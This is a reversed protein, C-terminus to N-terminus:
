LSVHSTADRARDERCASEEDLPRNPAVEPLLRGRAVAGVGVGHVSEDQLVERAVQLLRVAVLRPVLDAPKGVDVRGGEGHMMYSCM